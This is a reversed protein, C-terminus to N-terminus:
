AKIIEVICSKGLEIPSSTTVTGGSPNETLFGTFGPWQLTGDTWLKIKGGVFPFGVTLVTAIGNIQSTLDILDPTISSGGSSGGNVIPM